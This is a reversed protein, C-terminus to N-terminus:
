WHGQLLSGAARRRLDRVAGAKFAEGEERITKDQSLRALLPIAHEIRFLVREIRDHRRQLAADLREVAATLEELQNPM